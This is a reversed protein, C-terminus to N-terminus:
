RRLVEEFFDRHQRTWHNIDFRAETIERARAGIREKHRSLELISDALKQPDPEHINDWDHPLNLSLGGEGVLENMGGNGTHLIPLGCAMAEIVTNPTWDMHKVHVLIDCSNYIAPAEDQTYEPIYEINGVNLSGALESFSEQSCDFIGEGPLLPGAIILKVRDIQKNVYPLARILPEIRHRIYHKGICLINFTTHETRVPKFHELDLSNYIIRFPIDRDGFFTVAANRAHESGFVVGDALSYFKQIGRNRREYDERYARHYFSNIHQIIKVKKKKASKVAKLPICGYTAYIVNYGSTHNRFFKSMRTLRVNPGGIARTPVGYYVRVAERPKEKGFFSQLRDLMM